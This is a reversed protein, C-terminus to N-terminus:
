IKKYEPIDDDNLKRRVTARSLNLANSAENISDYEVNNIIVKKKFINDRNAHALKMKIITEDSPRTGAKAIRMNEIAEPSRKKGLNGIRQKERTEQSIIKGKNADIVKQIHESTQKYGKKYEKGLHTESLKQRTEESVIRGTNATSIKAKTEETCIHGTTNGYKANKVINLFLPNGKVTDMIMQETTFALERDHMIVGHFNFNPDKNYAEQLKKNTHIGKSLEYFHDYKRKELIGSGVYLENTNPNQLIYTGIAKKNFEQKGDFVNPYDLKEM